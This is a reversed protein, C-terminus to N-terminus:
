VRLESSGRFWKATVSNARLFQKPHASKFEAAFMLRLSEVYQFVPRTHVHPNWSGFGLHELESIFDSVDHFKSLKQALTTDFYPATSTVQLFRLLAPDSFEDSLESAVLARWEVGHDSPIRDLSSLAMIMASVSLPLGSTDRYISSAVTAPATPLEEAVLRRVEDLTLALETPGILQLTGRMQHRPDALSSASRGSLIFKTHPHGAAFARISDDVAPGMDGLNEYSDIVITAGAADLFGESGHEASFILEWLARVSQPTETISVWILPSEPPRQAAWSRLLTTKGFGTPAAIVTINPATSDLCSFLRSRLSCGLSTNQDRHALIEGLGAFRRPTRRM